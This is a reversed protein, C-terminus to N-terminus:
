GIVDATNISMFNDDLSLSVNNSKVLYSKSTSVHVEGGTVGGLVSGEVVYLSSYHIFREM